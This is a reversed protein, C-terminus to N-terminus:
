NGSVVHHSNWTILNNDDVQCNGLKLYVDLCKNSASSILNNNNFKWKQSIDDDNCACVQVEDTGTSSLCFEDSASKVYIENFGNDQPDTPVLKWGTSDSSQGIECPTLSLPLCSNTPTSDTLHQLCKQSPENRIIKAISHSVFM